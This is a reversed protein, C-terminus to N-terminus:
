ETKGNNGFANIAGLEHAVLRNVERLERLAETNERMHEELRAVLKEWRHSVYWMFWVAVAAPFGISGVLQGIATLTEM